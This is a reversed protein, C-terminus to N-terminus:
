EFHALLRRIGEAFEQEPVILSAVLFGEQAFDYFHGPHISVQKSILARVALDEDSQLAPVRLVVSWGGSLEPRQCIPQHALQVDLESLNARVRSMVQQQFEVRTGLLASAAVQVPTGVSLYSDAIVELRALAGRKQQEPGSVAVWALKMQPLGCIKSIGSLTFTLAQDSACFSAANSAGLSFDLFVEDSIIAAGRDACFRSLENQESRSAYHGTPNNPHVVVVARTRESAAAKLASFDIQWGHDYLLPYRVLKVDCLDALFDFLPYGPSPILIEDGANCLLKFISSYGESTGSTLVLDDVGVRDGRGAYYRAVAERAGLMGHAEPAYQLLERREFAKLIAEEDYNFRCETPNSRTLDLIRRGASKAEALARSLRNEQLNWRTRDSFM